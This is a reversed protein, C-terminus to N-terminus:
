SNGHFQKSLSKIKKINCIDEGKTNLNSKCLGNKLHTKTICYIYYNAAPPRQQPRPGSKNDPDVFIYQYDPLISEMAEYPPLDGDKIPQFCFWCNWVSLLVLLEM